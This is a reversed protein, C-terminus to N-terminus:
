ILNELREEENLYRVEVLEEESLLKIKPAKFRVNFDDPFIKDPNFGTLRKLISQVNKNIFIKGIDKVASM